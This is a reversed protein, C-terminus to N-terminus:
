YKDNKSRMQWKTARKNLEVSVAHCLAGILFWLMDIYDVM